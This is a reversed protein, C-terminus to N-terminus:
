FLHFVMSIYEDRQNCPGAQCRSSCYFSRSTNSYTMKYFSFVLTLISETKIYIVFNISLVMKNIGYKLLVFIVLLRANDNDNDNFSYLISYFYNDM